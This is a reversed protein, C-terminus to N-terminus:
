IPTPIRIANFFSERGYIDIFDDPKEWLEVMYCSVGTPKSAIIKTESGPDPIFIVEKVSEGVKKLVADLKGIYQLGPYGVVAGIELSSLRIAKKEGEVIYVRKAGALCDLNFFIPSIGVMHSRYKDRAEAGILRHRIDFLKGRFWVPITLSSFEPSVPCSECFGLGWRDIEEHSMKGEGYWVEYTSPNHYYDQWLTCQHMLQYNFRRKRAKEEEIAQLASKDLRDESWWTKYGCVRCWANGEIFAVFRDTGDKCKPCPGVYQGATHRKLPIGLANSALVNWESSLVNATLM